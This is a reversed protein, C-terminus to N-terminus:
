ATSILSNMLVKKCTYSITKQAIGTHNALLHLSCNPNLYIKDEEMSRKLLLVTEDITTGTLAAPISGNNKTAQQYSIIFGKIGLWYILIALPVYM